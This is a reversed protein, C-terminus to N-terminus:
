QAAVMTAFSRGASARKLEDIEAQQSQIAKVLYPILGTESLMLYDGQQTVLGPLVRQVDQATFGVSHAGNAKWDYSVPRLAMVASLSEGLPHINTKLREDSSCSIGPTPEGTGIGCVGGTDYTYMAINAGSNSIAAGGGSIATSGGHTGVNLTATSTLNAFTGNGTTVLTGATSITMPPGTTGLALSQMAVAGASSVTFSGANNQFSNGNIVGTTAVTAFTVNSTTAVAQGINITTGGSITV